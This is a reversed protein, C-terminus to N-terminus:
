ADAALLLGGPARIPADMPVTSALQTEAGISPRADPAAPLRVECMVCLYWREPRSFRVDVEALRLAGCNYCVQKVCAM